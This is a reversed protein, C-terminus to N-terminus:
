RENEDGTEELAELFYNWSHKNPVARIHLHMELFRCINSTKIRAQLFDVSIVDALKANSIVRIQLFSM